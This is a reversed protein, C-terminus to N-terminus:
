AYIFRPGSGISLRRGPTTKTPDPIVLMDGQFGRISSGDPDPQSPKVFCYSADATSFSVLQIHAIGIVMAPASIGTAELITPVIDIMHHFQTRTGGADKIGNPWDGHGSANRRFALGGAEDM